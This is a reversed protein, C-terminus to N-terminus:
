ENNIKEITEKPHIVVESGDPLSKANCKIKCCSIRVEPVKEYENNQFKFKDGVALEHFQM